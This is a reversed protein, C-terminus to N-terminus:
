AALAQLEDAGPHLDVGHYMVARVFEARVREQLELFAAHAEATFEQIPSRMILHRLHIGDRLLDMDMLHETWCRDIATLLETRLASDGLPGQPSRVRATFQSDSERRLAEALQAGDARSALLSEMTDAAYRTPYIARVQELLQAAPLGGAQEWGRAAALVDEVQAHLWARLQEGVESSGDLVCARLECVLLRQQELVDEFRMHDKRYYYNREEVRRQIRKFQRTLSRNSIPGHADDMGRLVREMVHGAHIRVLEDQAAIFYRSEGPDGQRGSRGRLQDDFRRCEHRETGLVYLGGLEAVGPGLKIDIGRGAMNTAVTVAGREGAREIIAAEKGHNKANLVAHPIGRENLLVSLRESREVAVTGVLVPQGREHRQAIEDVVARLKSDVTAFLCDDQDMRIVPVHPPVAVVELDFVDRLEIAESRATGTMGSLREYTLLYHQTSIAALVDQEPGPRIGEKAEVAQHLGGGWRRGEVLRGSFEDVIRVEDGDVVYDRDRWLLARARIAHNLHTVLRAHEPLYMNDIGLEREALEVGTETPSALRKREDVDYDTEPDMSRVIGALRLYTDSADHPEGQLTIVTLGEDVLIADAEDVIAFGRGRQVVDAPDLARQDHLYRRAFERVTGYTVDADFAARQVATPQESQLAGATLGLAAYVPAMWDRDRQALHDNSTILHVNRGALANLVLPATAVLTKGEGTLMETVLGRHLAIAAILQEHFHRLGLTRFAAERVAAFTDALLADLPEGNRARERLGDVVMRLDEDSLQEFRPSMAEIASARTRLERLMRGEGRALKRELWYGPGGTM